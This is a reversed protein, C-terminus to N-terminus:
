DSASTLQTASTPLQSRGSHAKQRKLDESILATLITGVLLALSMIINSSLTNVSHMVKGMAMTLLIGFVQASANLLNSTTGEAAPFTIEAAFEFGIPLYGTMFFGLVASNIFVIALYGLDLTFTFTLMALFSLFYDLLTTLKFKKFRDLLFGGAVSGLMGSVVIVVGIQGIAVSEEPYFPLVMQALLTSVAYFVGTNIGYTVFLLAFDKSLCLKKLTRWFNGDLTKEEQATIQALSPPTPPRASFFCLIMAFIITNLLASYLFLHTLRSSVEEQTGNRVIIPPVLFGIAIGLQNGFVGAACATSVENPGFWVAALRPPIGLTFMQSAGVITQGVFTIWFGDPNTSFMRLWSGLANGTAGLLLSVRLGYKDLVYAAPIFLVIYTAMYIMSTWDVATFSVGYFDAVIQAIVSYMIWQAGNSASLLIFMVLIAWRKKYVRPESASKEMQLDNGIGMDGSKSSGSSAATKDASVPPVEAVRGSGPEELGGSVKWKVYNKTSM